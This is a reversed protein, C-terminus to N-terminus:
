KGKFESKRIGVHEKGKGKDQPAMINSLVLGEEFHELAVDNPEVCSLWNTRRFWPPM